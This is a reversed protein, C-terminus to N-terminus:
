RGDVVDNSPGERSQKAADITILLPRGMLSSVRCKELVKNLRGRVAERSLGYVEALEALSMKKWFRFLLLQREDENVSRLISYACDRVDTLDPGKEDPEDYVERLQSIRACDKLHGLLAYHMARCVWTSKKSGKESEWTKLSKLLAPFCVDWIVTEDYCGFRKAMYYCLPLHELAEDWPEEM